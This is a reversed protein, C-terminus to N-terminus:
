LDIILHPVPKLENLNNRYQVIEERTALGRREVWQIFQQEDDVEKLQDFDGLRLRLGNTDDLWAERIKYVGEGLGSGVVIHFWEFRNSLINKVYYGKQLSTGPVFYWKGLIDFFRRVVDDTNLEIVSLDRQPLLKKGNIIFLLVGEKSEASSVM